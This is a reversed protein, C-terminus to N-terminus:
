LRHWECLLVAQMPAFPAAPSSVLVLISFPVHTSAACMLVRTLIARQGTNAQLKLADPSSSVQCFTPNQGGAWTKRRCSQRRRPSHRSPQPAPAASARSTCSEGQHGSPGDDRIGVRGCAPSEACPSSLLARGPGFSPVGAGGSHGERWASQSGLRVATTGKRGGLGNGGTEWRKSRGAGAGPESAGSADEERPWAGSAPGARQAARGGHGPHASSRSSTRRKRPAFRCRRPTSTSSARPGPHAQAPAPAAGRARRSEAGSHPTTQGPQNSVPRAPRSRLRQLNLLRRPQRLNPARFRERKRPLRESQRLPRHGGTFAVGQIM